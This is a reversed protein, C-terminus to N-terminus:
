PHSILYRGDAQRVVLTDENINVVPLIGFLDSSWAGSSFLGTTPQVYFLSMDYLIGSYSTPTGTRTWYRDPGARRETATTPDSFWDLVPGDSSLFTGGLETRSPIFVYNDVTGSSPTSQPNDLAWDVPTLEVISKFEDSFSEYVGTVDDNLWTRLTCAEWKNYWGGDHFGRLSVIGSSMLTVTEPLYARHVVRWEITNGDFNWTDDYVIAGLALFKVPVPGYNCMHTISESGAVCVGTGDDACIVIRLGGETCDGEVGAFSTSTIIPTLADTGDTGTEGNCVYTTTESGTVCVGAGDDACIVVRLGGETCDGEVGTFPTTTIIPSLADTGNTGAEGNCVYTTTESGAVCVGFGDDTCAEIRLGGETCDGEVGDFPTTTIIPSNADTGNTGAEGNCVYTTTETGEACTGTGDDTCAVIMVGGDSCDGMAGEFPTATVLPPTANEGPAGNCIIEDVGDVTLVVGGHPCQEITASVMDVNSGSSATGDDCSIALFTMSLVMTAFILGKFISQQM